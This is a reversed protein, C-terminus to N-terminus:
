RTNSRVVFQKLFAPDHKALLAQLEAWEQSLESYREVDSPPFTKVSRPLKLAEAQKARYAELDAGKLVEPLHQRAAAIRENLQEFTPYGPALMFSTSM